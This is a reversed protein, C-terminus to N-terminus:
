IYMKYDVWPPGAFRAATNVDFGSVPLIHIYKDGRANLFGGDPASPVDAFEDVTDDSPVGPSHHNHTPHNTRSHYNEGEIVVFKRARVDQEWYWEDLKMELGGILSGSVVVGVRQRGKHM